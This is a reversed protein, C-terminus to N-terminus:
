CFWWEIGFCGAIVVAFLCASIFAEVRLLLRVQLPLWIQLQLRVRRQMQNRMEHSGISRMESKHEVTITLFVDPKITRDIVMQTQGIVMQRHSRGTKRHTSQLVLRRQSESEQPSLCYGIFSSIAGSPSVNLHAISKVFIRPCRVWRTTIIITITM